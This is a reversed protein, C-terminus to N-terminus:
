GEVETALSQFTLMFRQTSKYSVRAHVPIVVTPYALTRVNAKPPRTIELFYKMAKTHTDFRQLLPEYGVGSLLRLAQQHGVHIALMMDEDTLAHRYASLDHMSHKEADHRSAPLKLVGQSEM